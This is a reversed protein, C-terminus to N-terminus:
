RTSAASAIASSFSGTRSVGTSGRVKALAGAAAHNLDVVDGDFAGAVDPRGVGSELALRPDEHALEGAFRRRELREHAQELRPDDVHDLRALYEHRIALAHVFGLAWGGFTGVTGITLATGGTDIAIFSGVALAAYGAAYALWRPRRARLGAYLFSAWQTWFPNAAFVIWWLRLPEDRLGHQEATPSM